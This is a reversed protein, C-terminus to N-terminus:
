GGRHGARHVLRLGRPGRRQDPLGGWPDRGPRRGGRRRGRGLRRQRERGPRRVRGGHGSDRGAADDLDPLGRHLRVGRGAAARPPAAPAMVDIEDGDSGRLLDGAVVRGGSPTTAACPAAFPGHLTLAAEAFGATDQAADPIPPGVPLSQFDAPAVVNVSGPPWAALAALTAPNPVPRRVCPVASQTQARAPAPGPVAALAAVLALALLLAVVLARAALRRAARRHPRRRRPTPDSV